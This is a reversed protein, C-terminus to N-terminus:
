VRHSQMRSPNDLSAPTGGRQKAGKGRHQAGWGFQPLKSCSRGTEVGRCGGDSGRSSSPANRQDGKMSWVQLLSHGARTSLGCRKEQVEEQSCRLNRGVSAVPSDSPLHCAPPPGLRRYLAGLPHVLERPLNRTTPTIAHLIPRGRRRCPRAVPGREKGWSRRRRHRAIWQSQEPKLINREGPRFSFRLPFISPIVRGLHAWLGFRRVRPGVPPAIREGLLLCQRPLGNDCM